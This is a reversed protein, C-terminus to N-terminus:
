KLNFFNLCYVKISSTRNLPEFGIPHESQHTSGLVRFGFQESLRQQENQKYGHQGPSYPTRSQSQSNVPPSYPTRSRSYTTRPRRSLAMQIVEVNGSERAKKAQLATTNLDSGTQTNHLHYGYNEIQIM